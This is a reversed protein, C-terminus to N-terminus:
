QANFNLFSVVLAFKVGHSFSLWLSKTETLTNPLSGLSSCMIATNHCRIAMAIHKLDSLRCAAIKWLSNLGFGYDRLILFSLSALNFAGNIKLMHWWTDSGWGERQILIRRLLRQSAGSWSCGYRDNLFFKSWSFYLSCICYSLGLQQKSVSDWRVKCVLLIVFRESIHLDYVILLRHLHMIDIVSYGHTHALIVPYALM